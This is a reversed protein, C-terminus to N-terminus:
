IQDELRFELTKLDNGRRVELRIKKGPKSNLLGNINNLHLEKVLVGNVSAILDGRLVGAKDATSNARVDTIEFVNLSSGKAKVNLGSLNFYFQKKFESNKKLYIKEQPFNFIVTFRSLIEGGLTGNRDVRNYKLTDSFYSNSDPFNALAKHITYNGLEISEIRGTKGTIEGGLGRGLINNLTREPLHIRSDTEPELLLGHSAGTDVLLKANLSHESNISIPALLYPKTDQIRIPIMEYRKKQKFKEPWMLTMVKRQYDVKIIFRSFLEYGLVGHVDTGLYNRLELYDDDLVLLAHGKGVVGPLTLSVNNAVYADVLKEGGPATLTYKRSYQLQLIDAFAKQTLIATRVGTDVIFKLPIADNLIVRVVILNNHIEIPIQVKKKGDAIHFGLNQNQAWLIGPFLLIVLVIVRMM